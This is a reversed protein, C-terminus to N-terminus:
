RRFAGGVIGLLIVIGFCSWYGLHPGGFNPVVAHNWVLMLVLPGLFLYGALIALMGLCAVAFVAGSDSVQKGRVKVSHRAM